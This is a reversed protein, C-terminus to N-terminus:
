PKAQPSGKGAVDQIRVKRMVVPEKPRGGPSGLTSCIKEVVDQGEVVQGFITHKGNLHPTPVHTIFFQSGNTSPRGTNAMALVGPKDFTLTPVIEDEFSYGPGGMGTGTPDGGQMMFNPIIRHFMVGDYYHKKVMEGLAPDKYPKTAMALGAFNEVTKPAEKPFLQAVITGHSTEIVAYMGPTEKWSAAADGIGFTLAAAIGAAAYGLRRAM